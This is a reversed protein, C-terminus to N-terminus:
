NTPRTPVEPPLGSTAPKLGAGAVALVCPLLSGHTLVWQYNSQSLSETTPHLNSIALVLRRLIATELSDKSCSAERQSHPPAVILIPRNREKGNPVSFEEDEWRSGLEGTAKWVVLGCDFVIHRQDDTKSPSTSTSPFLAFGKRRRLLWRAATSASSSSRAGQRCPGRRDAQTATSPARGVRRCDNDLEPGPGFRPSPGCSQSLTLARM